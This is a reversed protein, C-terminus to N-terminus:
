KMQPFRYSTVKSIGVGTDSVRIILVKDCDQDLGGVLIENAEASVVNNNEEENPNAYVRRVGVSSRESPLTGRLSALPASFRRAFSSMRRSAEATANRFNFDKLSGSRKVRSLKYKSQISVKVLVVSGGRSFKLANSVLNRIVESLKNIDGKIYYSEWDIAPNEASNDLRIEIGKAQAQPSILHSLLYM